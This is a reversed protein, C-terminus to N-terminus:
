KLLIAKAGHMTGGDTIQLIYVGNAMGAPHWTLARYGPQVGRLRQVDVREGLVNYITMTIDSPQPVAITVRLQNNFPNPYTDTIQFVSPQLQTEGEVSAEGSVGFLYVIRTPENPDNSHITLIGQYDEEQTPNFLVDVIVLSDPQLELEAVFQPIFSAEDSDITSILLPGEGQNEIQMQWCGSDGVAVQGFDHMIEPLHIDPILTSYSLAGM